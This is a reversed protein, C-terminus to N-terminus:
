LLPGSRPEPVEIFSRMRALLDAAMDEWIFRRTLDRGIRVAAQRDADLFFRIAIQWLDPDNTLVKVLSPPFKRLEEMNSSVSAVGAAAMEYFKLPNSYQFFVNDLYPMIGVDFSRLVAPIDDPAVEGPFWVNSHSDRVRLLRRSSVRGVFIFNWTPELEALRTILGWDLRQSIVGAYGIRPSPIAMIESRGEGTASSLREFTRRSLGNGLLFSRKYHPTYKDHLKQSTTLLLDTHRRVQEETRIVKASERGMFDVLNDYLEFVRFSDKFLRTVYGQQPYNFWVLPAPEDIDLRSQLHAYSRRLAILNLEALPGTSGAVRDHIVYRPSYVYLREALRTLRPKGILEGVRHPKRILTSVPCLPRNVAVVTSDVAAAAEALAYLLPRRTYIPWDVAMFVLIIRPFSSM